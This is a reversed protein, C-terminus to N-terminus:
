TALLYVGFGIAAIPLLFLLVPALRQDVEDLSRALRDREDETRHMALKLRILERRIREEEGPRGSMRMAEALFVMFLPWFLAAVRVESRHRSDNAWIFLFLIEALIALFAALYAASRNIRM